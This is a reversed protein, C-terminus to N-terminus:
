RWRWVLMSTRRKTYRSVSFPGTSYDHRFRKSDHDSTDDLYNSSGESFYRLLKLWGELHYTESKSTLVRVRQEVRQLKANYRKKPKSLEDSTSRLSPVGDNPHEV